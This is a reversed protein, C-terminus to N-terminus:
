KEKQGKLNLKKISNSLIMMEDEFLTVGKGVRNYGEKWSRIDYKPEADNWSVINLEKRWDTDTISLTAIHKVIQFKVPEDNDKRRSYDTM